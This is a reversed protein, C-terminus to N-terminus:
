YHLTSSSSSFSTCIVTEPTAKAKTSLTPCDLPHLPHPAPLQSLISPWRLHVLFFIYVFLVRWLTQVDACRTLINLSINLLGLASTGGPPPGAQGARIMQLLTPCASDPWALAPGAVVKSRRKLSLTHWINDVNKVEYKYIIKLGLNPILMVGAGNMGPALISWWRPDRLKKKM